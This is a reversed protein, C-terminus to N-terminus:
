GLPSERQKLLEVIEKVRQSQSKPCVLLAEGTDVIVLDAVGVTAVLKGTTSYVLTDRTDLALHDAAALGATANGAADARLLTAMQAWGGVDSWGIEAPIVVLREAKEAVGVDITISERLRPWAQRMVAEVAPTMRGDAQRAAAGIEDLVDAVTPVFRRIEALIRDVRWIFIGSNWGYDGSQVYREADAQPPKEIFREVLRATLTGAQRLPAGYHIYGYGTEAYTPTIGLTVLEGERALAEAFQVAARFGAADRIAADSHFSGMVARADRAAILTAALGISALTGRGTPEAVVNGAALAPLQARVQGAYGGSTVIYQQDLPVLPEIRQVTEQLMTQESTLTLFQKPHESTSLPWLRTGSGGALISAYM